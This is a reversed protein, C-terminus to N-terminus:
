MMLSQFILHNKDEMAPVVSSNQLKQLTGLWKNNKPICHGSIM